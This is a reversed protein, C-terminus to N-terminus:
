VTFLAVEDDYKCSGTLKKNNMDSPELHHFILFLGFVLGIKTDTSYYFILLSFRLSHNGQGYYYYDLLLVRSDRM